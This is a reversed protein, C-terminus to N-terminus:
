CIVLLGKLKYWGRTRFFKYASAHFELIDVYVLGLIQQFATNEKFATSLCDFRPLFMSIQHYTTILKDFAEVYDSALQLMLTIPAQRM